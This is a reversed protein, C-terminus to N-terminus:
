RCCGIENQIAYKIHKFLMKYATCYSDRRMADGYSVFANSMCGSNCLKKYECPKCEEIEEARSTLSKRLELNLIKDFDDNNINGFKFREEGDFRACPYIDGSSNISLFNNQCSYSHVCGKPENGVFNEIITCLPDVSFFDKDYFWSDFLTILANGYEKPTLSFEESHHKARGSLVIPNLKLGIEEKRFFTYIENCVDINKKTLIAIAGFRVKKEKLKKVVGM